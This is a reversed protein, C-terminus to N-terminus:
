VIVSHLLFSLISMRSGGILKPHDNELRTLINVIKDRGPESRGDRTASSDSWTSADSVSPVVSTRFEHASLLALRTEETVVIGGHARALGIAFPGAANIFVSTDFSYLLDTM